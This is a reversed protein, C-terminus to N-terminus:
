GIQFVFFFLLSLQFIITCEEILVTGSDCTILFFSSSTQLLSFDCCEFTLERSGETFSYFFCDGEADVELVLFKFPVDYNYSHILHTQGAFMTLSHKRQEECSEM